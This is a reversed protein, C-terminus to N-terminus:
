PNGEPGDRQSREYPPDREVLRYSNRLKVLGAQLAQSNPKFGLINTLGDWAPDLLAGHRAGLEAIAGIAADQEADGVPYTVVCALLLQKLNNLEDQSPSTSLPTRGAFVARVAERSLASEGLAHAKGMLTVFTNMLRLDIDARSAEALRTEEKRKIRLQLFLRFASIGAVVASGAIALTRIWTQGESLAIM